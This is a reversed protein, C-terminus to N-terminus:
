VKINFGLHRNFSPSPAKVLFSRLSAEGTGPVTVIVWHAVGRGVATFRLRKELPAVFAM